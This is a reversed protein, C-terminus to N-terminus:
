STPTFIYCTRPSFSRSTRARTFATLLVSTLAPPTKRALGRSLSSTRWSFIDEFPEFPLQCGLLIVRAKATWATSTQVTRRGVTSGHAAACCAPGEVGSLVL